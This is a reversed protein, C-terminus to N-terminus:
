SQTMAVPPAYMVELLWNAHHYANCSVVAKRSNIYSVRLVHSNLSIQVWYDNVHRRDEDQTPHYEACEHQNM